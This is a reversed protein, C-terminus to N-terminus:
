YLGFLRTEKLRPSLVCPHDVLMEFMSTTGAKGAGIIFFAPVPFVLQRKGAPCALAGQAACNSENSFRHLSPSFGPGLFSPVGGGGPELWMGPLCTLRAAVM